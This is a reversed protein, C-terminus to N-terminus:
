PNLVAVGIEGPTTGKTTTDTLRDTYSWDVDAVEGAAGSVSKLDTSAGAVADCVRPMPISAPDVTTKGTWHMKLVYTKTPMTLNAVHPSAKLDVTLALGPTNPDIDKTSCDDLGYIRVHVACSVTNAPACPVEGAMTPTGSWTAYLYHKQGDPSTYSGFVGPNAAAAPTCGLLTGIYLLGAAVAGTSAWRTTPIRM